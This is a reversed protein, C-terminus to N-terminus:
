EGVPFARDLDRGGYFVRLILVSESSIQLAIQVRREFGVIRMGAILHDMSRGRYPFTRLGLCFKEIREIYKLAREPYGSEAIYRYINTLDEEAQPSFLVRYNM